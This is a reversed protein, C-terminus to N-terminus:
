RREDAHPHGHDYAFDPTLGSQVPLMFENMYPSDTKNTDRELLQYMLDKYSAELTQVRPQMVPDTQAYFYAAKAVILDPYDYDVLQERVAMPVELLEENPDEPLPPLKFMQPERQVPLEITLGAEHQHLRRSFRISNRTSAAWLGERNAYKHLADRPLIYAWVVADGVSNVLRVSDDDIIRPRLTSRLIVENMGATTMGLNETSHYYSWDTEFAHSRLARNIARAVARYRDFNPDYVLDQGTLLALVELVAEDLTMQLEPNM